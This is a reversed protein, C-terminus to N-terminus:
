LFVHLTHKEMGAAAAAVPTGMLAVMRLTDVRRGVAAQTDPTDEATAEADARHLNGPTNRVLSCEVAEAVLEAIGASGGGNHLGSRNHRKRVLSTHLIGM